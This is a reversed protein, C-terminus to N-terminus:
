SWSGSSRSCRSAASSSAPRSAPASAPSSGAAPARWGGPLRRPLPAPRLGTLYGAEMFALPEGTEPDHLLYSALVTPLGRAPNGFCVSVSKTGVAAAGPIACPM